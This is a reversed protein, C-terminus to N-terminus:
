NSWGTYLACLTTLNRVGQNFRVTINDGLFFEDELAVEVQVEAEFAVALDIFAEAKVM